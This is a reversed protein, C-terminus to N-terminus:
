DDTKDGFWVKMNKPWAYLRAFAAVPLDVFLDTWTYERLGASARLVFLDTWTYDRHDTSTPRVSLTARRLITRARERM